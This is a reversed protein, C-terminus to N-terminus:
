WQVRMEVGYAQSLVGGSVTVGTDGTSRTFVADVSEYAMYWGLIAQSTYHANDNVRSWATLVSLAYALVQLPKQNEAMKALTLFPVAGVFAHGSV